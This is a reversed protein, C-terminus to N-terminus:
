KRVPQKKESFMCTAKLHVPSQACATKIKKNKNLLSLIVIIQWNELLSCRHTQQRKIIQRDSFLVVNTSYM